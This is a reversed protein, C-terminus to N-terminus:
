IYKATETIGKRSEHMRSPKARDSPYGIPILATPIINDSLGFERRAMWQHFAGVWVTGLGQETAELIMHTGVIAADISGFANNPGFWSENEDYCVLLYCPADYHYQTIKKVKERGEESQIVYITQPQLNLATPANRGAELIKELKEKEIQKDSYSRVSYRQQSLELFNM